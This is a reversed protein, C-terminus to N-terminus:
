HMHMDGMGDMGGPASTAGLGGVTFTVPVTGAKAFTLTGKVTEGQTLAATMDEFMLHYGGPKLEITQGPKIELGGDIPRMRMVGKDNIMEHVDGHGAAPISASLLRDPEKGTNTIRLYGGAVKAGGPTARLWPTTIELGGAKVTAPMAMTEAALIRLGPAPRKVHTEGASPTEAWAVRTAGCSQEVPFYLTRGPAVSGTLYASFVFEDYDADPLDGGSWSITKVGETLPKGHMTAPEAYAAKTTAVTWGPKPMPKADIVGEPLTVVLGTTAAGDCGHMVQLVAKYMHNPTATGTELLVHGHAAGALGCLAAAGLAGRFFDFM